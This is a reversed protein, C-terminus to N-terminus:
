PSILALKTAARVSRTLPKLAGSVIRSAQWYLAVDHYADGLLPVLRGAAIHDKVLIEPNMGWGMGLLSAEIFGQSSPLRHSPPAPAAGLHAMMWNQQLNDKADFRLMPARAITDATVGDVFHRAIFAPSATALYRIAGLAHSDCGAVPTEHATVAASVEGRRLWDASFDQDDVVLDFLLDPVQAAAPLFWTALSDANVAVRLRAARPTLATLERALGQELLGVQDLHAALRRGTKTGTCPQGRLVLPTGIREELSKLRQSIASQTVGLAAAAADFSGTRLIASLATLQAYDVQM